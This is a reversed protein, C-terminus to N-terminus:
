RHFSGVVLASLMVTTTAPPLISEGIKMREDCLARLGRLMKHYFVTQLKLFRPVKRMRFAIFFLFRSSAFKLEAETAAVEM